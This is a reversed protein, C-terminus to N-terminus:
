EVEVVVIPARGLAAMDWERRLTVSEADEEKGLLCVRVRAIGAKAPGRRRPMGIMKQQLREFNSLKCYAMGTPAEARDIM